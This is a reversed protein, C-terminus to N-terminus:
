ESCGIRDHWTAAREKRCHTLIYAEVNTLYEHDRVADVRHRGAWVCGPLANRIAHSSSRKLSGVIATIRDPDIRVLTHVHNTSVAICRLHIDNKRSVAVISDLIVAKAGPDLTIAPKHMVRRSYGHLGRHEGTPPPDKYNGHSHIRHQHNRFGRPDGPLWAGFTSWQIHFWLEPM